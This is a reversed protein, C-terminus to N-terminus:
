ENDETNTEETAKDYTYVIDRKDMIMYKYGDIEHIPLSYGAEIMGPLHEDSLERYGKISYKCMRGPRIGRKQEDETILDGVMLIEQKLQCVTDMRNLKKAISIDAEGLNIILGSKSKMELPVARLLIENFHLSINPVPAKLAKVYDQNYKELSEEIKFAKQANKTNINSSKAAEIDKINLLLASETNRTVKNEM